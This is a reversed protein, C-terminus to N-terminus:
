EISEIPTYFGKRYLPVGDKQVEVIAYSGPPVQIGSDDKGDWTFQLQGVQAIGDHLIRIPPEGERPLISVTLNMKEQPNIVIITGEQTSELSVCPGVFCADSSFTTDKKLAEQAFAM